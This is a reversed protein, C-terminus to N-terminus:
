EEMTTTIEHVGVAKVAEAVKIGQVLLVNAEGLKVIMEEPRYRKRSM